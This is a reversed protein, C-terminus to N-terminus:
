NLNDNTLTRVSPLSRHHTTNNSTAIIIVQVSTVVCNPFLLVAHAYFTREARSPHRGGEEKGGLELYIGGERKGARDLCVQKGGRVMEYSIFTEKGGELALHLVQKGM